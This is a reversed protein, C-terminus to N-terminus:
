KIKLTLNVKTGENDKSQIKLNAGLADARKKMNKLGNGAYDKNMSFGKGNDEISISLLPKHFNVAIGAESCASYKILNNIAEKLILYLHIYIM